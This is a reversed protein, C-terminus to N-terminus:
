IIGAPIVSSMPHPGVWGLGESSEPSVTGGILSRGRPEISLHGTSSRYLAFRGNGSWSGPSPAHPVVDPDIPSIFRIGDAHHVLHPGRHPLSVDRMGPRRARLPRPPEPLVVGGAQLQPRRDLPRM